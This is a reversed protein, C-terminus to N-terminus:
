FVMQEMCANRNGSELPAPRRHSDRSLPAAPPRATSEASRGPQACLTLRGSPGTQVCPGHEACEAGASPRLPHSWLGHSRRFLGISPLSGRGSGFNNCAFKAQRKVKPMGLESLIFLM